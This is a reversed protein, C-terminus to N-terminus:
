GKRARNRAVLFGTLVGAAFLLLLLLWGPATITFGLWRLKADATNSFVFILAAVAAVIAVIQRPTLKDV